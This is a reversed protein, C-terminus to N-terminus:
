CHHSWNFKNDELWISYFLLLIILLHCYLSPHSQYDLNWEWCANSWKYIGLQMWSINTVWKIGNLVESPSSVGTLANWHGPWTHCKWLLWSDLSNYFSHIFLVKLPFVSIFTNTNLLKYLWRTIVFCLGKQIAPNCLSLLPCLYHARLFM